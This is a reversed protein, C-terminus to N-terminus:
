PAAKPTPTPAPSAPAQSAPAQSSTAPASPASAAPPSAPTAGLSSKLQSEIAGVATDVSVRAAVRDVFPQAAAQAKPSLQKAEGIVDALRSEKLATEMRGVVAEASKDDPAHDVKRVRIVSKAGAILRDVVGGEAPDAEANIAATAVTAFDRTLETQVPVGADKFKDLAALDFKGGSAKQVAALETSYKQGGDLARKLNQLELSLLVRESTAKREGEAKVLGQVSQELSLLKEGVPKVAAAVDTPKASSTRLTEIQTKLSTTEDQAMKLTATLRDNDTKMAKIQEALQVAETKVGAVDKDIRQTGSKAAETSASVSAIRAEVDESVGKRLATLQTALSTELDAVKGTLAALQELRGANPNSAGADALAKLKDEVSALRTLQEPAGADSASAALAAKTEAVLRSQGEALAPIKQTVKELAALRDELATLAKPPEATVVPKKELAEIRQTIVTSDETVRTQLGSLGLQPLAWESGALALVGGILSAALHSFFGGRKQVVVTEPKIQAAPTPAANFTGSASKASPRENSASTAAAILKDDSSALSRELTSSSRAAASASSSSSAAGVYSVSAYSSAPAPGPTADNSDSRPPISPPVTYGRAVTSTQSAESPASATGTASKVTAPQLASPQLTSPKLTTIKIETAKLDLTAYPRKVASAPLVPEAPRNGSRGDKTDDAMRIYAKFKFSLIQRQTLPGPDRPTPFPGTM